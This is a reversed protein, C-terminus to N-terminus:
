HQKAFYMQRMQNKFNNYPKIQNMNNCLYLYLIIIFNYIYIYQVKKKNLKLRNKEIDFMTLFKRNFNKLRFTCLVVNKM